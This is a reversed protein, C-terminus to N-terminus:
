AMHTLDFRGVHGFRPRYDADGDRTSYGTLHWHKGDRNIDVTARNGNITVRTDDRSDFVENHSKLRIVDRVKARDSAGSWTSDEAHLRAKELRFAEDPSESIRSNFLAGADKFQTGVRM